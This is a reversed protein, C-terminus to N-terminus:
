PTACLRVCSFRSLLLLLLYEQRSFEMSLSLLGAPYLGHTGFLRVFSLVCVCM